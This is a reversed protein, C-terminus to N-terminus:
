MRWTRGVVADKTLAVNEARVLDAARLVGHALIAMCGAYAALLNSPAEFVLAEVHIIHDKPAMEAPVPPPPPVAAAAPRSQAVVM